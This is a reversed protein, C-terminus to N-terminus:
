SSDSDKFADLEFPQNPEKPSAISSRQFLSKKRLEHDPNSDAANEDVEEKRENENPSKDAPIERDEIESSRILVSCGVKAVQKSKNDFSPRNRKKDNCGAENKIKDLRGNDQENSESDEKSSDFFATTILTKLITVSAFLFTLKVNSKLPLSVRGKLTRAIVDSLLSSFAVSAIKYLKKDPNVIYTVIGTILGQLLLGKSTAGPFFRGLRNTSSLVAVALFAFSDTASKSSFDNM